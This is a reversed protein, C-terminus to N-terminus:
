KVIRPTKHQANSHLIIESIETLRYKVKQFLCDLLKHVNNLEKNCNYLFGSRLFLMFSFVKDFLRLKINNCDLLFVTKM